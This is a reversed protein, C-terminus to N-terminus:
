SLFVKKQVFYLLTKKLQLIKCIVRSWPANIWFLNKKRLFLINQLGLDASNDM